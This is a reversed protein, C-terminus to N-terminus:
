ITQNVGTWLNLLKIATKTLSVNGDALKEVTLNHGKDLCLAMGIKNNQIYNEGHETNSIFDEFLVKERAKNYNSCERQWDKFDQEDDFLGDFKSDTWKNFDNYHKFYEPENLVNGDEDCPVFMWLELPRKLFEAYNELRVVHNYAFDRYDQTDHGEFKGKNQLVFDTMPILKM